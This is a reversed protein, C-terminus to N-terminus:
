GATQTYLGALVNNDKDKRLLVAKTSTSGIDIGMYVKQRSNILRYIDVEVPAHAITPEFNYRVLSTFHPYTSRVLELPPHGYTKERSKTVFLDLWDDGELPMPDREELFLLAAGIAGYLHGHDDTVPEIGILDHIHRVVARNMSVGGALILPARIRSDALLTDIINKAIGECIGDSIQGPSYGQQQAHVLDTKAFVACRTVVKPREDHNCFAMDSLTEISKLNLRWAQQDFFSGTGAACSSNSRFREYDGTGNFTILGFKEGSVFLLSGAMEYFRKVATIMAIQTDYRAANHVVDPGSLTMAIGGVRSFPIAQLMSRLTEGIAGRHFRYFSSTVAGTRDLTVISVAVSGIDIGVTLMHDIGAAQAFGM